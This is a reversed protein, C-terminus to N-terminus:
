SKVLIPVHTSRRVFTLLSMLRPGAKQAVDHRRALAAPRHDAIRVPWATRDVREAQTVRHPRAPLAAPGHCIDVLLPEPGAMRLAPHTRPDPDVHRTSRGRPRRESYTSPRSLPDPDPTHGRGQFIRDSTPRHHAAPAGGIVGDGRGRSTGARGARPQRCPRAHDSANGPSSPRKQPPRGDAHIGASSRM